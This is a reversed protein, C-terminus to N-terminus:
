DDAVGRQREREKVRQQATGVLAQKFSDLKSGVPQGAPPDVPQNAQPQSWNGLQSISHPSLGILIEEGRVAVLLLKQRSGLNKVDVINIQGGGAAGHSLGFRKLLLLTAVLLVIVLLFSATMSLWQTWDLDTAM